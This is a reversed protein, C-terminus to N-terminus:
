INCHINFSETGFQVKAVGPTTPEFGSRIAYEPDMLYSGNSTFMVKRKVMVGNRKKWVEKAVANKHHVHGKIYVDADIQKQITEMKTVRASINKPVSGCGHEVYVDYTEKHNKNHQLTLELIGHYGVYVNHCDLNRAISKSPSMGTNKRTRDEHNGDCMMLIHKKIPALIESVQEIQKEPDAETMEFPSGKSGIIVNEILDGTLVVGYNKPDKKALYAVTEKVAEVDCAEQGYHIDGLAVLTFFDIGTSITKRIIPLKEKKISSM